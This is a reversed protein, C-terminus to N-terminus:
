NNGICAHESSYIPTTQIYPRVSVHVIITTPEKFVESFEKIIGVFKTKDEKTLITIENQIEM